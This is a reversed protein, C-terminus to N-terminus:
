IHISLSIKCSKRYPLPKHSPKSSNKYIDVIWSFIEDKIIINYKRKVFSLAKEIAQNDKMSKSM